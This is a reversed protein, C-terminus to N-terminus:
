PMWGFGQVIVADVGDAQEGGDGGGGHLTEEPAPGPAQGGVAGTADIGARDDGPGQGRCGADTM